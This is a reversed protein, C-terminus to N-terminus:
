VYMGNKLLATIIAASKTKYEKPMLTREILLIM